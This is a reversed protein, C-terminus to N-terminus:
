EADPGPRPVRDVARGDRVGDEGGEEGGQGDQDAVRWGGVGDLVLCGLRTDEHSGDSTIVREVVDGAANLREYVPM